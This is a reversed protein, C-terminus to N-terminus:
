RQDGAQLTVPVAHDLVGCHTSPLARETRAPCTSTRGLRPSPRGGCRGSGCAPVSQWSWGGVLGCGILEELRSSTGQGPPQPTPASAPATREAAAQKWLPEFYTYEGDLAQVLVQVEERTGITAASLLSTVHSPAQKPWGAKDLLSSLDKLDTPTLKICGKSKYDFDADRRWFDDDKLPVGGAQTSDALMESHILIDTRKVPKQGPAPM